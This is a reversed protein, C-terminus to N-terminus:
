FEYSDLWQAEQTCGNKILADYFQKFTLPPAAQTFMRLAAVSMSSRSRLDDSTMQNKARYHDFGFTELVREWKNPFDRSNALTNSLQSWRPKNYGFVSWFNTASNKNSWLAGNVSNAFNPMQKVAGPAVMESGPLTYSKEKESTSSSAATTQIDIGPFLAMLEYQDKQVSQKSSDLVAFRGARSVGIQVLSLFRSYGVDPLEKLLNNWNLEEMQRRRYERDVEVDPDSVFFIKEASTEACYKAINEATPPIPFCSTKTARTINQYQFEIEEAAVVMGSQRVAKMVVSFDYSTFLRKFATKRTESDTRKQQPTMEELWGHFDQGMFGVIKSVCTYDVSAVANTNALLVADHENLVM